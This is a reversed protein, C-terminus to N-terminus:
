CHVLNRQSALAHETDYRSPPTYNCYIFGFGFRLRDGNIWLSAQSEKRGQCPKIPARLSWFFVKQICSFQSKQARSPTVELYAEANIQWRGMSVYYFKRYKRNAVFLNRVLGSCSYVCISLLQNYSIPGAIDVVPSPPLLLPPMITFRSTMIVKNPATFPIPFPM